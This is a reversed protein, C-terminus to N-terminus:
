PLVPRLAMLVVRYGAMLVIFAESGTCSGRAGVAEGQTCIQVSSSLLTQMPQPRVTNSIAFQARMLTSSLCAIM